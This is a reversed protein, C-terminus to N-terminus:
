GMNIPQKMGIKNPQNEASMFLLKGLEDSGYKAGAYLVLSLFARWLAKERDSMTEEDFDKEPRKNAVATITAM